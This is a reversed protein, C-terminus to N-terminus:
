ARLQALTGAIDGMGWHEALKGAHVRYINCSTFRLSKGTPAIGFFIGGHTGVYVFSAAVMDSNTISVEVSVRLDPMGALRATFFDISAQKPTKGSPAPAAASLQHNIYDDAFLAAFATIDHNSLTNAFQEVLSPTAPGAAPM